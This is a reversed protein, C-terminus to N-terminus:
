STESKRIFLCAEKTYCFKAQKKKRGCAVIYSFDSFNSECASQSIPQVLVKCALGQIAPTGSGFITWFGKLCPTGSSPGVIAKPASSTREHKNLNWSELM